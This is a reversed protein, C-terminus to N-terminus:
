NLPLFNSPVNVFLILKGKSKRMSVMIRNSTNTIKVYNNEYPLDFRSFSLSSQPCSLMYIYYIPIFVLVMTGIAALCLPVIRSYNCTMNISDNQLVRM